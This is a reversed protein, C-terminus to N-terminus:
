LIKTLISTHWLDDLQFSQESADIVNNLKAHPHFSHKCLHAENIEYLKNQSKLETCDFYFLDNYNSKSEYFLNHM